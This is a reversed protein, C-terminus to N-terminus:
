SASGERIRSPRTPSRGERSPITHPRCRTEERPHRRERLRPQPLQACRQGLLGESLRNAHHGPQGTLNPHERWLPWAECQVPTRRPHQPAARQYRDQGGHKDNACARPVRGRPRNGRATTGCAQKCPFPSLAGVRATRDRGRLRSSRTAGRTPASASNSWCRGTM